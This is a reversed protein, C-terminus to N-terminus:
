SSVIKLRTACFPIVLCSRPAPLCPQPAAHVFLLQLAVILHLLPPTWTLTFLPPHTVATPVAAAAVAAVAATAIAAVAAAAATAAVAAVAAAAAIAAVAAPLLQLLAFHM